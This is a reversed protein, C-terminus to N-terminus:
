IKNLSKQRKLSILEECEPDTRDGNKCSGWRALIKFKSIGNTSIGGGYAVFLTKVGMDRLAKLRNRTKTGTNKM